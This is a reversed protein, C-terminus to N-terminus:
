GPVPNADAPCKQRGREFRQTSGVYVVPTHASPLPLRPVFFVADGPRALGSERM